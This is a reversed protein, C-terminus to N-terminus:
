LPGGRATTEPWSLEGDFSAHRVGDQASAFLDQIVLVAAGSAHKNDAMVLIEHKRTSMLLQVSEEDDDSLMRARRILAPVHAAYRRASSSLPDSSAIVFGSVVEVIIVSMVGPAKLLCQVCPETVSTLRHSEFRDDEDYPETHMAECAASSRFALVCLSNM